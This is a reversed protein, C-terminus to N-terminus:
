SNAEHDAKGTEWYFKHLSLYPKIQSPLFKEIKGIYFGFFKSITESFSFFIEKYDGSQILFFLLNLTYDRGSSNLKSKFNKNIHRSYFVGIDFYRRFTQFLTYNHSHFVKSDACYMISLGRKIIKECFLMDENMIVDDRFMGEQFFVDKKIASAVNSFFYTRIGLKSIDKKSRVASKLPYNYTRAFIESPRASPNPVQRAFTASVIGQAIPATLETLFRNDTPLADQTLFVLIDGKAQLAAKNRTGGHNFDSRSITITLLQLREAEDVTGDDSSSDIIIIEAPSVTQERLRAVLPALLHKANLTPIIISISNM